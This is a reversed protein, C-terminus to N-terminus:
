FKTVIVFSEFPERRIGGSLSCPGRVWEELPTCTLSIPKVSALVSASHEPDPNYESVAPVREMSVSVAPVQPNHTIGYMYGRTCRGCFASVQASAATAAPVPTVEHPYPHWVCGYTARIPTGVAGSKPKTPPASPARSQNQPSCSKGRDPRALMVFRRTKTCVARRRASGNM